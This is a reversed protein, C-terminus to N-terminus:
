HADVAAAVGQRELPNEATALSSSHSAPRSFERMTRCEHVLPKLRPARDRASQDSIVQLLVLRPPAQMSALPKNKPQQLPEALWEGVSV